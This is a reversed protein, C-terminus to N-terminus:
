EDGAQVARALVFLPTIPFGLAPLLVAMLAGACELDIRTGSM